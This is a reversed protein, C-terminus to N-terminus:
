KDESAADTDRIAGASKETKKNFLCLTREKKEGTEKPDLFDFYPCEDTNKFRFSAGLKKGPGMIKDGYHKHLIKNPVCILNIEEVSLNEQDYLLSILYTLCPKKIEKGAEKKTYYAPLNGAIKKTKKVYSTQNLGLPIGDKYDRTNTTAATKIDIHVFANYTEFMMDAGIPSSNPIGFQNYLWYFIREAGRAFEANKGTSKKAFVDKWDDRITEKSALGQKMKELDQTLFYHMEQLYHYERFEMCKM